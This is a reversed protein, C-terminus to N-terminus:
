NNKHPIIKIDPDSHGQGVSGLAFLSMFSYIKNKIVFDNRGQGVSGIAFHGM